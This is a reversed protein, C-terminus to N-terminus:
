IIRQEAQTPTSKHGIQSVCHAFQAGLSQGRAIVQAAGVPVNGVVAGAVAAAVSGVYASQVLEAGGLMSACMSALLADGCGLVDVPDHSLAPLRVVQDEGTVIALGDRGLTVLIARSKTEYLLRHALEVITSHHDNMAQRLEAESPCLVDGHKMSLLGSRVGSVDGAILAVRDRVSDCLVGAWDDAFLGLGFDTLVLGDLDAIACVQEVVRSRQEADLEFQHTCDLKMVKDRGVLFRQKEPMPADVEIPLMEVGLGDMRDMLPCADFGNSIPTCLVPRLGLAALHQAVIAAGGDFQESSVPRLSLMPHEEAIEPWQCHNYTDLITEGVVVVRKGKAQDFIRGICSTSFDYQQALKTLQAVDPDARSTKQISEVIATSSFVVDGSSFVVRGNNSEVIAREDAFRPDNKSAYEAGKIYIEPKIEGLLSVATPEHHIYVWDVFALAALNEARLDHTFMPQDPGKNVYADATVSVILRDGQAAAFQLHRIHGPHVIDFCGHCQVVRVGDDRLGRRIRILQDLTVIKNSISDSRLM